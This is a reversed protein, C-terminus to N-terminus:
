ATTILQDLRVDKSLCNRQHPKIAASGLPPPGHYVGGLPDGAGHASSFRHEGKGHGQAM